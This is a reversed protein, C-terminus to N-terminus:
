KQHSSFLESGRKQKITVSPLQEEDLDEATLKYTSSVMTSRM